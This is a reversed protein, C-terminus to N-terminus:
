DAPLEDELTAAIAQARSLGTAVAVFALYPGAVKYEAMLRDANAKAEELVRAIAQNKREKFTM